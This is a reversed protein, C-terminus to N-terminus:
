WLDTESDSGTIVAYFIIEMLLVETMRYLNNAVASISQSLQFYLYCWYEVASFNRKTWCIIDQLGFEEAQFPIWQIKLTQATETHM